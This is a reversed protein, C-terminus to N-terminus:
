ATFPVVSLSPVPKDEGTRQSPLDAGPRLLRAFNEQAQAAQVSRGALLRAQLSTMTYGGIQLDRREALYPSGAATPFTAVTV